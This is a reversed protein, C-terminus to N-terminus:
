PNYTFDYGNAYDIMFPPPYLFVSLTYDGAPLTPPAVPIDPEKLLAGLPGFSAAIV